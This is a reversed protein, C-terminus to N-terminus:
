AKALIRLMFKPTIRMILRNLFRPIVVVRRRRAGRLSDRVVKEVSGFYFGPLTSKWKRLEQGDHFETHTFGPCLAQVRVGTGHLEMHLVEALGVLFAKTATYLGGNPIPMFTALSSTFIIVGRDRKLMGPLAHRALLAPAVSHVEIMDLQAQMDTEAYIGITGFGANNVLVDLRDIGDIRRAVLGMGERKSLDAALVEAAVGYQSRLSAALNELLESRRAVLVLSFGDAALQRAFEAGIGSSAGTVIATGPNDWGMFNSQAM